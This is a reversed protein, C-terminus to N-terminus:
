DGTTVQVRGAEVDLRVSGDLDTRYVAPVAAGLARMTAAVPHGYTNGKGVEVVAVRPALRALLSALGEDASGHHSVKLADIRHLDLGALVDSEADATLLARFAGDRLELVIARQNPDAGPVPAGDRRPPSLVRFRM